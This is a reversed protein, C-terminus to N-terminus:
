PLVLQYMQPSNFSLPVVERLATNLYHAQPAHFLSLNHLVIPQRSRLMLLWDGGFTTSVTHATLDVKLDAALASGM